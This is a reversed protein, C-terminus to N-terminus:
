SHEQVIAEQTHRSNRSSASPWVEGKKNQCFQPATHPHLLSLHDTTFKHQRVLGVMLTEAL